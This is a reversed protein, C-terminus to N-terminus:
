EKNKGFFSAIRHVTGKMEELSQKNAEQPDEGWKPMFDIPRTLKSSRKGFRLKFLNVILSSLHAMRFDGRTEGVPDLSDYAM